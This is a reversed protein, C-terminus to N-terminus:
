HRQEKIGNALGHAGTYAAVFDGDVIEDTKEKFKIRAVKCEDPSPKFLDLDCGNPILEVKKNKQSRKLMGDRIGPSLAIGANMTMYCMKELLSMGTLIVPNTIVGMAKPLEPWLDRVEFVFKKHPKLLRMVIGPIGVTLPTTTAFLIDYDSKLAIAISRLSFKIFTISRKVFSDYNSYPLCIEIVNIGQVGGQRIGNVPVGTLGSKGGCPSGCIM